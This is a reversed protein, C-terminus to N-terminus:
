GATNDEETSNNRRLADASMIPTVQIKEGGTMIDNKDSYGDELKSVIKWSNELKTEGKEEALIKENQLGQHINALALATNVNEYSTVKALLGADDGLWNGLTADNFGIFACAKRRSFGMELFPKLSQIINEKEEPTYAKGQQAMSQM